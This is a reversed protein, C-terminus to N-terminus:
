NRYQDKIQGWTKPQAPVGVCGTPGNFTVSTIASARGFPHEFGALDLYNGRALKFCMADEFGGCTVGPTGAGVVSASHDFLVRMLFYRQLPNVVNIGPPYANYLSIRMNTQLYGSGTDSLPVFGVDKVQVSALPGQFSPCTKSVAAPALHDITVFSSTQCGPPDFRWADPVTSAANAYIVTVEYAQHPQDIGLVSAYLSYQGAPAPPTAPPVPLDAIIPDCQNWSLQIVGDAAHSASAFGLVALATLGM